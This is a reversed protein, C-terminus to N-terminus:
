GHLRFIAFSGNERNKSSVFVIKRDEQVALDHIIQDKPFVVKGVNGFGEDWGMDQELSAIFAQSDSGGRLYAYGAVVVTSKLNYLVAKTMYIDSFDDTIFGGWGQKGFLPDEEGKLGRRQLQLFLYQPVGNDSTGVIYFQSRDDRKLIVNKVSPVGDYYGGVGFSADLDGGADYRGVFWRKDRLGESAAVIYGDGQRFMDQGIVLVSPGRFVLRYGGNGFAGDLSGNNKLKVLIASDFLGREDLTTLLLVGGDDLLEMTGHYDRGKDALPQKMKPVDLSAPVVEKLDLSWLMVGESGFGEDLKGNLDFRALGTARNFGDKRAFFGLVYKGHVSDFKVSYPQPLDWGPFFESLRFFVSGTKGFSEDIGGEEDLMCLYIEQREEDTAACLIRNPESLLTVVRPQLRQGQEGYLVVESRVGFDTDPTGRVVNLNNM